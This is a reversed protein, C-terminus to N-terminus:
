FIMAVFRTDLTFNKCPKPTLNLALDSCLDVTERQKHPATFLSMNGALSLVSKFALKTKRGKEIPM